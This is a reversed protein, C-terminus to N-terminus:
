VLLLDGRRSVFTNNNLTSDCWRNHESWFGRHFSISIVLNISQRFEQLYHNELMLACSFCGCIKNFSVARPQMGWLNLGSPDRKLGKLLRGSSGWMPLRHVVSWSVQTRDRPQSSGRSSPMAVWELISTQLIRMSLSAQCAVTWLTAFLWVPSFCSLM